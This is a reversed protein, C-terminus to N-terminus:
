GLALIDQYAAGTSQLGQQQGNMRGVGLRQGFRSIYGARHTVNELKSWQPHTLL